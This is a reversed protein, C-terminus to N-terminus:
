RGVSGPRLGPIRVEYVFRVFTDYGSLIGIHPEGEALIAIDVHRAMGAETAIWEFEPRDQWQFSEPASTDNYNLAYHLKRDWPDFVHVRLTIADGIMIPQNSTLMVGVQMLPNTARNGLSDEAEEIYLWYHDDMSAAKRRQREIEFRLRRAIGEGEVYEHPFLTRGHQAPNRVTHLRDLEQRAYEQSPWLDLEKTCCDWHHVVVAKIQDLGAYNLLNPEAPSHPRAVREMNRVLTLADRMRTSLASEWDNGHVAALRRALTEGLLREAAKIHEAASHETVELPAGRM